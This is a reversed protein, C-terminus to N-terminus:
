FSIPCNDPRATNISPDIVIATTVSILSLLFAFTVKQQIHIYESGKNAAIFYLIKQRSCIKWSPRYFDNMLWYNGWNLLETEHKKLNWFRNVCSTHELWLVLNIFGLRRVSLNDKVLGIWSGYFIREPPQFISQSWIYSGSLQYQFLKWNM